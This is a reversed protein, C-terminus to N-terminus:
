PAGAPTLPYRVVAVMPEGCSGLVGARRTRARGGPEETPEVAAGNGRRMVDDLVALSQDEPPLLRADPYARPHTAQAAPAAV